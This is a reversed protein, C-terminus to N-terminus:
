IYDLVLVVHQNTLYVQVSEPQLMGSVNLQKFYTFNQM